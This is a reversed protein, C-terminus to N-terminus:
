GPAASGVGSTAATAAASSKASRPQKEGSSCAHAHHMCTCPTHAHCVSQCRGRADALRM